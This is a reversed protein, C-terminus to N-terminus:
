IPMNNLLITFLVMGILAFPYTAAYGSAPDNTGVADVAAGMGPTSTMGGCIAGSLMFWNIKLLYKGVLFGTIMCMLAIICVQLVLYIGDGALANVVREGYTLGTAGVFSSLSMEKIVDLKKHNMRFKLPGIEGIHGVILSGMLVGGTTGLSFYGLSGMSIKFSGVIFGFFCAFAFAAIDFGVSPIEKKATHSKMNELEKDLEKKEKELDIRFWKPILNVTLIVVLVGFPFGIANAVGTNARSKKIFVKKQEDSLSKTNEPTLRGKEDLVSLVKVKEGDELSEYKKVLEGASRETTELATALGPSSTLAATYVGASEYVRSNPAIRSFGYSYIAGSITIIMGLAVFKAGYNKLVRALNEAAMLGVAAIFLVLFLHSIGHSILAGNIIKIAKSFGEEGPSIGRLYKLVGWGIVLGSFLSGSIGLKFKGIRVKGLLMGSSLTLFILAYPNTALGLFDFKM